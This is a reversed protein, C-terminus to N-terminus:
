LSYGRPTIMKGKNVYTKSNGVIVTTTMDIDQAPLGRLDTIIIKQDKRGCDKIVGVVTDENRYKMIIDRARAMNGPREHSKPNYICLVFDGSSASDLRKEVTKWDTLCDSLSIVAFDNMLPAGLLASGAVASTIGPVIEVPIEDAEKLAIELMLGAMGYVGADGSSILSVVEGKRAYDLAAICRAAEKRMGSSVVTKGSIINEILKIYTSYGIVVTSENLASISRLSMLEKNGPGIGVVYIKGGM